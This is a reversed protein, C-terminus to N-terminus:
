NGAEQILADVAAQLQALPIAGALPKVRGSARHVLIVGPTGSIGAAVGNQYDELVRAEMRGSELCSSFKEADLGIEKALPTLNDIPFGEGNSTTREYIADAFRWYATGGGLEGACETAEAQKQAGPNHFGLPFHRYVWNVKDPNDALLKKVTPHFRKCFPCEFDSYEVLTVPAGPNGLIHDRAPDVARLNAAKRAEEMEKQARAMARQKEIYNGIGREIAADLLGEENLLKLLEERVQEAIAPDAAQAPATGAALFGSLLLISVFPTRKSKKTM